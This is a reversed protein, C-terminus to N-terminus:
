SGKRRQEKSRPNLIWQENRQCERKALCQLETDRRLQAECESHSGAEICDAHGCFVAVCPNGGYNSWKQTRAHEDPECAGVVEIGDSVIRVPVQAEDDFRQAVDNKKQNSRDPQNGSHECTRQPLTPRFSQQQHAQEHDTESKERRRKTTAIREM